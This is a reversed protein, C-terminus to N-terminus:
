LERQKSSGGRIPEEACNLGTSRKHEEGRNDTMIRNGHLRGALFYGALRPKSGAGIKARIRGVRPLNAATAFTGSSRMSITLRLSSM